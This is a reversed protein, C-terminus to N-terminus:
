AARANRAATIASSTIFFSTPVVELENAGRAFLGAAIVLRFIVRLSKRLYPPASSPRSPRRLSRAARAGAGATTPRHLLYSSRAEVSKRPKLIALRREIAKADIPMTWDMMGSWVGGEVACMREHDARMMDAVETSCYLSPDFEGERLIAQIRDEEGSTLQSTRRQDNISIRRLVRGTRDDDLRGGRMADTTLVVGMMGASARKVIPQVSRKRRLRAARQIKIAARTKRFKLSADNSETGSKGLNADNRVTYLEDKPVITM